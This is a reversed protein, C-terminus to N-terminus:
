AWSAAALALRRGRCGPAGLVFHRQDRRLDDGVSDLLHDAPAGQAISRAPRSRPSSTDAPLSSEPQHLRRPHDWLLLLRRPHRRRDLPHRKHRLRRGHDGLTTPPAFCPTRGSTGPRSSSSSARSGSSTSPTCRAHEHLYTSPAVQSLSLNVVAINQQDANQSCGARSGRHRRQHLRRRCARRQDRAGDRRRSASTSATPASAQRSVRSRRATASATTSGRGTRRRLPVQVLRSGFDARATVGSDIVAIGVGAGDRRSWAVSRRRDAPLADRAAAASVPLPARNGTPAMPFAAALYQVGPQASFTAAQAGTVTVSERASPALDSRQSPGAMQLANSLDQDTGLVLAHLGIDPARVRAVRHGHHRLRPRRRRESRLHLAARGDRARLRPWCAHSDRGPCGCAIGAGVCLCTTSERLRIVGPHSLSWISRWADALKPTTSGSAGYATRSTLSWPEAPSGARHGRRPRSSCSRTRTSPTVEDDIGAEGERAVLM